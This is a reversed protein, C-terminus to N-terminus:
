CKTLLMIPIGVKLELEHPPFGSFRLTNLYEMPYLLETAGRDNGLPVEEDSSKYIIINGDAMKLIETNIIDATDNRPCVIAKHQLEQATSHQLTDKDYIFNILNSLGSNDDPICYKEPVTVWFSNQSDDADPEGIKGNGIDLLWSAFSCALSQEAESRGPQLLRMNEKLICVKFHSWLHSEAILSAIIELKSAGKKVPLTQRFDGGLVVTKGGFIKEHSDMIDKLTSCAESLTDIFFMYIITDYQVYVRCLVDLLGFSIVLGVRFSFFSHLHHHSDHHLLRPPPQQRHHPSSTSPPPAPSPSSTTDAKTYTYAAISTSITTTTHATAPPAHRLPPPSPSPSM